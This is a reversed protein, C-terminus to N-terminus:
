EPCGAERWCEASCWGTGPRVFNSCNRCEGIIRYAEDCTLCALGVFAEQETADFVRAGVLPEGCGPCMHASIAGPVTV